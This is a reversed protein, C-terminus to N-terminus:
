RDVVFGNFINLRNQLLGQLNLLLLLHHSFWGQFWRIPLDWTALTALSIM